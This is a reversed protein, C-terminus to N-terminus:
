FSFPSHINVARKLMSNLSKTIEHKLVFGEPQSSFFSLDIGEDSNRDNFLFVCRGDFQTRKARDFIQDDNANM